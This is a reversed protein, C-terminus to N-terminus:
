KNLYSNFLREFSELSKILEEQEALTKEQEALTKEQESLTKEQESLTKNLSLRKILVKLFVADYKEIDNMM